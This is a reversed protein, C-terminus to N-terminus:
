SGVDELVEKWQKTVKKREFHELFYQRGNQGMEKAKEPDDLIAVIKQALEKPDDISSHVGAKAHNLIEVVESKADSVCIIPKGVALLGYLKSPMIVGENEPYIGILAVDAMSLSEALRDLPQFPIFMINDLNHSAAIEQVKRRKGGDGAFVFAIDERDRLERAAHIMVELPQYRGLNGSYMVVKKHRLGLEDLLQNDKKAVPNVRGADAWNHIVHIKDEIEPVKDLIIRKMAESLVIVGSAYKFSLTTIVDIAKYLLGGEKIMGVHAPLEPWLDHVLVAYRQGRLRAGMLGLFPLLAPNTNFILLDNKGTSFVTPLMSLFCSASNLIRGVIKNKDFLFSWVRRISVGNHCEVKPCKGWDESGGIKIQSIQTIQPDSNKIYTPQACVVETNMGCAALDEVLDTMIIATTTM